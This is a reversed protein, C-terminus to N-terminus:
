LLKCPLNDPYGYLNRVHTVCLFARPVFAKTAGGPASDKMGPGDSLIDASLSLIVQIAEIMETKKKGKKRKKRKYALSSAARASSM